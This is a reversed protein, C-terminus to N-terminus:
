QSVSVNWFAPFIMPTYGSLKRSYAGLNSFEGIKLTPAEEMFLRQMEAWAKTRAGGAQELTFKDMAGRKAPSDWWGPYGPNVITVLAPEPVFGHFTFFGEWAAPDGRKQLLTAWDLVQLDVKFGAEQLNQAAVQAMKFLFDYQPSTLIRIPQGKYGAKTLLERAKAVSSQNYLNADIGSYFMSQKPFLSSELHVLDPNGFGGLMMAEPQIAAQAARRLNVDAMAGQKTNFILFAWSAPKIVAPKVVPSAKVRDYFEPNLSDAYQFQGSLVGELRTNANPVPVFRLEDVKATRSGAFGSPTGAPSSYQEFRALRIYQDPKREVFRFPGTGVFDKLPADKSADAIAKPMIAAAGNPYALLAPLPPFPEKLQIEVHLDDKATIASVSEAALKGRPSAKLWRQLSAVVDAATMPSGNHFKVGNRLTITYTLGDSSVEPYATALLPAVKWNGDYTYLTEFVHQTITSVLDSTTAPDLSPPESITAVTLTAAQGHLAVGLALTAALGSAWRRLTTPRIM